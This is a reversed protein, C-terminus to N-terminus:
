QRAHHPIYHHCHTFLTTSTVPTSHHHFLVHHPTTYIIYSHHHWQHNHDSHHLTTVTLHAHDLCSSPPMNLHHPQHHSHGLVHPPRTHYPLTAAAAQRRDTVCAGFDASWIFLKDHIIRCYIAIFSKWHGTNWVRVNQRDSRFSTGVPISPLLSTAEKLWVPSVPPELAWGEASSNCRRGSCWGAWVCMCLYVYVCVVWFIFLIM